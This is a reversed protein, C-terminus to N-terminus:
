ADILTTSKYFCFFLCGNLWACFVLVKTDFKTRSSDDHAMVCAVSIMFELSNVAVLM